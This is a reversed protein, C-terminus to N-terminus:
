TRWAKYGNQIRELAQLLTAKQTAINIRLFGKGAAGYMSGDNLRVGWGTFLNLLEEQTLGWARCDLWLLYTGEPEILKIEPMVESLFDRITRINEWLYNTEQDVYDECETYAAILAETGMFNYDFHFQNYVRDYAKRLEPNPLLVYASYFGALNFTKGPGSMVIAYDDAGPISLIPLFKHDGYTIDGHIEDSVLLVQNEKCINCLRSLEVETWVRGVPNHPNCILLARVEPRKAKEELDSWNIGYRGAQLQLDSSIVKRDMNETIIRFNHYVPEQILVTDGPSTLALLLMWLAGPMIGQAPRIVAPDLVLGHRKEYWGAVASQFRKRPFAGYAYVGFEAKQRVARIVPDPAKFDTDAVGLPILEGGKGEVDWKYSDSGIRNVPEDFDYRKDM